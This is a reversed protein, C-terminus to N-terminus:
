LSRGPGTHGGVQRESSRGGVTRNAGEPGTASAGQQHELGQAHERLLFGSKEALSM